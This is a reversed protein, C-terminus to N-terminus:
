EYARNNRFKMLDGKAANVLFSLDNLDTSFKKNENEYITQPIYNHNYAGWLAQCSADSVDKAYHGTTSNDWDGNYVNNRTGSPHDVKEKGSETKTLILCNLNNKLFINKGSKLINNNLCTLYYQYPNLSRDVSQKIMKIKNRELFQKQSEAEFTDSYIAYVPLNSYSILDLILFKSADLNIGADTGKIACCLDQIYITQNLEQSWEKHLICLGMIDGKLSYANDWAIYRYENPARKITYSGQANKHFLLDRIQNWLLQEPMSMYDATLAGEINKLYQNSFINNIISSNSIFKNERQTPRGLIDKIQKTLNDKFFQYADIPINFILDNPIGKLQNDNDVVFPDITGNGICVKFTKNTKQWEPFLNPRAEWQNQWKFYVGERFQLDKIIHKEIVSEADNASTDLYGFALYGKRVTNYLRTDINTYLEFIGEETAGISEIFYGIESIYYQLPDNGLAGITSKNGERIQLGSALTIEGATAAKSWVITNRGIKDQTEKVKDQFKIQKFKSSQQMVEYLPDLYLEKTKKFDFSILYITLRTLPSLEYFMAPERLHHLYIITYLIMLRAMYTKGLRTAGYMIIKNYTKGPNFIDKLQQIIHPFTSQIVANSLWGHAPDLFEHITPPKKYYIIKELQQKLEARTEPDHYLTYIEQKEEESLLDYKNSILNITEKDM